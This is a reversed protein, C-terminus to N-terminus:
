RKFISIIISFLSQVFSIIKPLPFFMLVISLVGVYTLAMITLDGTYNDFIYKIFDM